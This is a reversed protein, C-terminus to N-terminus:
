VNRRPMKSTTFSSQEVRKSSSFLSKLKRKWHMSAQIAYLGSGQWRSLRRCNSNTLNSWIINGSIIDLCIFLYFLFCFIQVPVRLSCVQGWIDLQCTVHMFCAFCVAIILLEVRPNSEKPLKWLHWKRQIAKWLQSQSWTCVLTTSTDGIKKYWDPKLLSFKMKRSVVLTYSNSSM